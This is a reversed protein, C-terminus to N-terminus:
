GAERNKNKDLSKEYKFMEKSFIETFERVEETMSCNNKGRCQIIKGQWELTFWSKDPNDKKRIFLIVTEGNAVRNVYTGVCHHLQEGEKRIEDANAPLRIFMGKYSMNFVPINDRDTKMKEIIRSVRLRKERERRDIFIKYEEMKRDHAEKFVKPYLNFENRMDYGLEGLWKVYDFYDSISNRDFNNKTFYKEIKYLSTYNMLDIYKNYNYKDRLKIFDEERIKDAYRLIKLDTLSPDKTNMLMKFKVRDIMLTEVVSNKNQFEPVFVETLIEKTMKYFGIKLFKEIYPIKRYEDFYLDMCWPNQLDAAINDAFIDAASYRMCTGATVEELNSRYLVTSRPVFMESPYGRIYSKERYECWRYEDTNKFSDWMYGESGESTHVTRHMEKTCVAPNRYDKRFDKTHRFYRVVVEDKYKQVLVSWQLSVLKERSMGESKCVIDKDCYPCKVTKNHRLRNNNDPTCSHELYGDATVDFDKGCSTCYAKKAKRSYFIYHEKNFVTKDIFEDYDKPVGGFKEMQLDIAQKLKRHKEALRRGKIIMQYENIGNEVEMDVSDNSIFRFKSKEKENLKKFRGIFDIILKREEASSIVINGNQKHWYYFGTLSDIAGTKWKINEVTLDQSIYDNMQLFTRFEPILKGGDNKFFNLILTDIGLINERQVTVLYCMGSILLPFEKHRDALIPRPVAALARKDM